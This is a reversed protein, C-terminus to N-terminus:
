TLGRRLVALAVGLAFPRASTTHTQKPDWAFSISGGDEDSMAGFVSVVRGACCASTLLLQLRLLYGSDCLSLLSTSM